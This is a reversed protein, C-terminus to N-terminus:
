SCMAALVTRVVLANGFGFWPTGSQGSLDRGNGQWRVRPWAGRSRSFGGADCRRPLPLKWLRGRSGNQATSNATINTSRSYSFALRRAFSAFDGGGTEPFQGTLM